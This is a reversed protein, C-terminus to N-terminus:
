SFGAWGALRRVFPVRRGILIEVSELLLRDGENVSRTLIVALIFAGAIALGLPPLAWEPIWTQLTFLLVATPLSTVLLPFVFHRGFLHVSDFAALEGLCLAAFLLVSLGWALASGNYGYAPVLALALGVDAIGAVVANIALMRVRGYALQATSGPGLVTALFAGAATLQLPEVVLSNPPGFVLGLSRQPLFIFLLFLPLSFVLMWKTVTAYTVQVARPNGKRLFRTAVPLFIFSASGIGVAMLRALTLTATYAGVESPHFASLVVTDGSGSLNFMVGVVFLPATFRFLPGLSEPARPGRPLHGPLHRLAYIVLAVLTLANALTYAALTATYSLGPPPLRLAVLLFAVFLGPTLIQVFLANPIVDSYGRFIATIISAVLSTAIAVSFFELGVLLDPIGLALALWPAALWLAVGLVTASALTAVISTRVITRREADTRVHPLSRAVANPLGLTGVSSLIGALTLELSFSNWDASPNRVLIVRSVFSLFVLCITSVLVLLTGHTVTTLGERLETSSTTAM